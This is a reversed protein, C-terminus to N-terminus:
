KLWDIVRQDIWYQAKWPYKGSIFGVHGGSTSLELEVNDPLIEATPATSPYMFPDDKAHLILTPIKITKIFQLSSCQQYYDEASKFGHLPATVQHDFDYFTNLKKIDVIIPSPITSFKEIYKRQLRTVLHRQYIKSFGQNMRQAADALQFPVSIAIAAETTTDSQQEGLWKLLVNGGLSFGIIARLNRQHKQTLYNVVFQL